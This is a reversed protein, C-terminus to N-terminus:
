RVLATSGMAERGSNSGRARAQGSKPATVAAKLTDDSMVEAEGNSRKRAAQFGPKWRSYLVVLKCDKRQGRRTKGNKRQKSESVGELRVGGWGIKKKKKEIGGGVDCGDTGPIHGNMISHFIILIRVRAAM